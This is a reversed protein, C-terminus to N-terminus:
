RIFDCVQAVPLSGNAKLLRALDTGAVYEMVLFHVDGAQDADFAQVIHPHTLRAAARAENRFREVMEPRATWARGLVKLAVARDMLRHRARYVAGMGGRGLVGVVHYRPHDRLEPPLEAAVAEAEPNLTDEALSSTAKVSAQDAACIQNLFTDDAFSLVARCCDACSEVHTEVADADPGRLLGMGFSRLQEADPHRSASAGLM